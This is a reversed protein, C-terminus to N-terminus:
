AAVPPTPLARFHTVGQYRGNRDAVAGKFGRVGAMGVAYTQSRKCWGLVEGTDATADEIDRWGNADISM